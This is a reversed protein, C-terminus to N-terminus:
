RLGSVGKSELFPILQRTDFDALVDGDSWQLTPAKTQGSIKIMQKFAEPNYRVEVRQYAIGHNQLFNEAEICWPCGQKIFLRSLNSEM